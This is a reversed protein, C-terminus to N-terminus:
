ITTEHILWIGRRIRLSRRTFVYWTTNYRLHIAVYAVIDPFVAVAFAVPALWMALVPRSIFLALWAALIALDIVLLAIWFKLKLYRLFGAAPRFSRCDEDREGPPSPPGSPVRFWSTLGGWIGRYVWATAEEIQRSM